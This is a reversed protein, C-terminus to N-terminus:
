LYGKVKMSAMDIGYRWEYKPEYKKAKVDAIISFKKNIEKIKSFKRRKRGGFGQM